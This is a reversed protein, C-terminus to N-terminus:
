AEDGVYFDVIADALAGAGMTHNGDVARIVQSLEDRDLAATLIDRVTEQATRPARQRISRIGDETIFTEWNSIEHEARELPTLMTEIM